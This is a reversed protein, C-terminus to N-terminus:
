PACEHQTFRDYGYNCSGRNAHKRRSNGQSTTASAAKTPAAAEVASATETSTAKVTASQTSATEV